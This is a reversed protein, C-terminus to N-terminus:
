EVEKIRINHDDNPAKQPAAHYKMWHNYLHVPHRCEAACDPCVLQANAHNGNEACSESEAGCRIAIAPINYDEAKNVIHEAWLHYNTTNKPAHIFFTNQEMAHELVRANQLLLILNIADVMTKNELKIKIKLPPNAQNPM